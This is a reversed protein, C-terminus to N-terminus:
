PSAPHATVFANWFNVPVAILGRPVEKFKGFLALANDYDKLAQDCDKTKSNLDGLMEYIDAKTRINEDSEGRTLAIQMSENAYRQAVEYDGKVKAANVMHRLSDNILRSDRPDTQAVELAEKSISFTVSFYKLKLTLDALTGIERLYQSRSQYYLGTDALNKSAYALAPQLEGLISYNLALADQAYRIAFGNNGAEAFRLAKKLHKASESFRTQSYDIIGLWYYSLPLLVNFKKEKAFEIIALLRIRGEDIKGVDRLYQAAYNEAISAETTDGIQSFRDRSQEFLKISKAASQSARAESLM